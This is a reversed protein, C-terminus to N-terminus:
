YWIELYAILKIEGSFTIVSIWCKEQGKSGGGGKVVPKNMLFFHQYNHVAELVILYDTLSNFVWKRVFFTKSFIVWTLEVSHM